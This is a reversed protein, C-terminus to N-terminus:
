RESCLRSTSIIGDSSDAGRISLWARHPSLYQWGFERAANPYKRELADPLWVEGRGAALDKRHIRRVWEIQAHLPQQLSDPLM